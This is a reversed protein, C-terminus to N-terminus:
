REWVELRCGLAKTYMIFTDLGPQRLGNEIKSLHSVSIGTLACVDELSMKNKKRLRRLFLMLNKRSDVERM